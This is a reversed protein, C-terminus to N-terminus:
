TLGFRISLITSEATALKLGFTFTAGASHIEKSPEESHHLFTRAFFSPCLKATSDVMNTSLHKSELGLRVLSSRLTETATDMRWIISRNRSVTPGKKSYWCPLMQTQHLPLSDQPPKYIRRYLARYAYNTRM